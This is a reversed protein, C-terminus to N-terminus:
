GAIRYDDSGDLERLAGELKRLGRFKWNTITTMRVGLALAADRHSLGCCVTLEIARQENESLRDLLGEIRLDTFRPEGAEEPHEPALREGDIRALTEVAKVHRQGSRYRRKILNDAIKLLYGVRITREALDDIEMLRVFVEQTVDEATAADTSQRVFRFVRDYFQACLSLVVQGTADASM